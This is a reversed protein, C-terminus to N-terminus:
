FPRLIITSTNPIYCCYVLGGSCINTDYTANLVGDPRTSCPLVKRSRGMTIFCSLSLLVGFCYILIFKM